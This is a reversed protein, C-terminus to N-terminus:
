TSTLPIDQSWRRLRDRVSEINPRVSYAEWLLALKTPVGGPVPSGQLEKFNADWASPLRSLNVKDAEDM